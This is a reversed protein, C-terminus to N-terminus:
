WFSFIFASLPPPTERCVFLNITQCFVLFRNAFGQSILRLQSRHGSQKNNGNNSWTLDPTPLFLCIIRNQKTEETLFSQLKVFLSLHEVWFQLWVCSAIYYFNELVTVASYILVRKSVKIGNRLMIYKYKCHDTKQKRIDLSEELIREVAEKKRERGDCDQKLQSSIPLWPCLIPCLLCGAVDVETMETEEWIESRSLRDRLPPCLLLLVTSSWSWEDEGRVRGWHGRVGWCVIVLHPLGPCIHWSNGTIKKIIKTAIGWIDDQRLQSWCWSDNPKERRSYKLLWLIESTVVM